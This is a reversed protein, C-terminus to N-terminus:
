TVGFKWARLLHKMWQQWVYGTDLGALVLLM